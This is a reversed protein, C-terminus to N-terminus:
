DNQSLAENTLSWLHREGTGRALFNTNDYALVTAGGQERQAVILANATCQKAYIPCFDGGRGLLSGAAFGTIPMQIFSWRQM